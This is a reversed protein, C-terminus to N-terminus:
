KGNHGRFGIATSRFQIVTKLYEMPYTVATAITGALMSVGFVQALNPEWYRSHSAAIYNM